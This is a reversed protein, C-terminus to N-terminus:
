TLVYSCTVDYVAATKRENLLQMGIRRMVGRAWNVRRNKAIPQQQDTAHLIRNWLFLSVLLRFGPILAMLANFISAGPQTADFITKFAASLENQEVATSTLANFSYGFGALGIIDLTCRSLFDLAEIQIFDNSRPLKSSLVNRLQFYRLM